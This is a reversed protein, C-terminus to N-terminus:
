ISTEIIEIAKKIKEPDDPKQLAEQSSACLAMAVRMSLVLGGKKQARDLLAAYQVGM